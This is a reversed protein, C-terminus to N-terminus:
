VKKSAEDLVVMLTQRRAKAAELFRAHTDKRIRMQKYQTAMSM